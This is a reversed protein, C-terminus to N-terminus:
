DCPTKQSKQGKRGDLLSRIQEDANATIGALELLVTLFQHFEGQPQGDIRDISRVVQKGTLKEYCSAAARTITAAERKPRAGRPAPRMEDRASVFYGKKAARSLAILDNKIRELPASVEFKALESHTVDFHHRSASMEAHMLEYADKHLLDLQKKLRSALRATAGLEKISIRTGIPEGHPLQLMCYSVLITTMGAAARDIDARRETLVPLAEIADRVRPDAVQTVVGDVVRATGVVLKSKDVPESM